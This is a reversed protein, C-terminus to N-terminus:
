HLTKRATRIENSTSPRTYRVFTLKNAGRDVCLCRLAHSAVHLHGTRTVTRWVVASTHTPSRSCPQHIRLTAQPRRWKAAFDFSRNEQLPVASLLCVTSMSDIQFRLRHCRFYIQKTRLFNGSTAGFSLLHIIKLLPNQKSNSVNLNPNTQCAVCLEFNSRRRFLKGFLNM